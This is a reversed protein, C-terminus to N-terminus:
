ATKAPVVGSYDILADEAVLGFKLALGKAKMGYGLNFTPIIAPYVAANNM